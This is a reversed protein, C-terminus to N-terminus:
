PGVRNCAADPDLTGAFNAEWLEETRAEYGRAVELAGGLTLGGAWDISRSGTCDEIEVNVQWVPQAPDAHIDSGGEHAIQIAMDAFGSSDNIDKLMKGFAECGGGTQWVGFGEAAAIATAKQALKELRKATM